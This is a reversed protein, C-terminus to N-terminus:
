LVRWKPKIDKENTAARFWGSCDNCCFRRYTRSLAKHYGRSQVNHSGCRPCGEEGLLERNFHNSCYPQLKEFVKRLLVVDQKNYTVMEEVAKREGNLIRLWLEHETHIKQGVGLFKGLYNLSNSNLFFNAKAVKYTDVSAVPPLAPLKHFLARTNIFPRDFSDGKHHVIVDAEMMLKRLVDVVHRDDHPDRKYRKPDDLVSVSEVKKDNWAWAASIIYREGLLSNPSIYDNHLLSFVAVPQLSTEVDYFLVKIYIGEQTRAAHHEDPPVGIIGDPLSITWKSYPLVQSGGRPGFM